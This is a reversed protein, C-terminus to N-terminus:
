VFEELPTGDAWSESLQSVYREFANDLLYKFPGESSQSVILLSLGLLRALDETLDVEVRPASNGALPTNDERYWASQQADTLHALVLSTHDSTEFDIDPEIDVALLASQMVPIHTVEFVFTQAAEDHSM